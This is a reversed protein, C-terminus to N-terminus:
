LDNEIMKFSYTFIYFLIIKLFIRIGRSRSYDCSSRTIWGSLGLIIIAVVIKFTYLDRFSELIRSCELLVLSM